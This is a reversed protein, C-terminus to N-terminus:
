KETKPDVETAKPAPAETKTAEAAKPKSLNEVVQGVKNAVAGAAAAALPNGELAKMFGELQMPVGMGGMFKGSMAALDDTSGFVTASVSQMMKAQADAQAIQVEKTATIRMEALKLEIGAKGFEEQQQLIQRDVDAQEKNVAVQQKAVDVAIMQRTKDVDVQEKAVQVAVMERAKQGAARLEEAEKSAQAAKTVAMYDAEAAAKKGEAIAKARYAEADAERQTKVYDKEAESQAQIVQQEKERKAAEIAEVTLVAQANQEKTKEAALRLSEAQARKEEQEAIAIEKERLALEEAKASEVEAVKTVQEKKKTAVDLAQQRDVDAIQELKQAGIVKTKKEAEAMQTAREKEIDRKALNEAKEIERKATEEEQEIRFTEAEKNSLAQAMEVDREQEAQAKAENMNLTLIAKKNEVEKTRVLEDTDLKKDNVLKRQEEITNVIKTRGVAHQANNPNYFDERTQNVDTLKASELQIGMLPLDDKVSEQIESGVELRGNFVATYEKTTCADRLATDLTDNVLKEYSAVDNPDRSGCAALFKLVSNADQPVSVKFTASIDALIFDACILAKDGLRDIQFVHTAFNFITYKHFIPICWAGSGIFVEINSVGDEKKKSNKGTRVVAQYSQPIIYFKKFMMAFAGVGILLVGVVEMVITAILNGMDLKTLIFPTILAMAGLVFLIVAIMGGGNEEDHNQNQDRNERERERM